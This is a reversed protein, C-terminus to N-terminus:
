LTESATILNKFEDEDLIRVGLKRAQDLKSGAESGAVVYTTKRSVSSLVMAGLREVLAKAEDRSYSLLGGTFVFTKGSFPLPTHNQPLDPEMISVGLQQLQDIVRRNSQEQFYSVLSESIEPGIERISQFRDRDATMIAHLSGFERALVKAIHRGIQRIGLGMLFRELPVARSQAIAELLLISSREAFGELKLLQEQNLRYLDSLDKVLGQDVLQAVTKKGLGDINLATKSAFHEIAGKLQAPCAAQGTCYYYAGEKAVASGCVPCHQPMLFPEHRMQGSIPIRETIAPIVDGAREVRVTDGVRIDKRAVEDANHLTARSITVGGVEVPRLLALPTLTGTRGVSIAIDQIETIEKRAPFKFAVAWRPSRSKMGLRIQWDVRNVKVVVGDIEYPLHDRQEQTERHFALVEDVTECRRRLSPVPVGWEALRELEDWHTSPHAGTMAMVEYCTVVLPRSATMHSDLQRLAGAAANRPNAFTDDGRETMRRNLAHFDSLRMYVEGRMVLHDPYSKTQLQLPLTRITRLNITVDEGVTGDGRTAGRVFVGRDYVLEVSLGDFKPEVTYEIQETQLERKIRQDFALVEDPQMLSDLSLMPREHPVKGLEDLPPAGVRQTPSDATVMDPYKLELDLLERFLRDYESDSIEPHDKVYYLYDHHRIQNRLTALRDEDTRRITAPTPVDNFLS